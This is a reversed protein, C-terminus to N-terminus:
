VRVFYVSPPDAQFVPWQIGAVIRVLRNEQLARQVAILTLSDPHANIASILWGDTLRQKIQVSAREVWKPVIYYVKGSNSFRHTAVMEHVVHFARRVEVEYVNFGHQELVTRIAAPQAINRRATIGPGNFRLAPDVGQARFDVRTFGPALSENGISISGGERETIRLMRLWDDTQVPRVTSQTM